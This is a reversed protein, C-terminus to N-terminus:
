FVILVTGDLKDRTLFLLLFPFMEFLLQNPFTRNLSRFHGFKLLLKENRSIVKQNKTRFQSTLGMSEILVAKNIEKKRLAWETTLKKKYIRENRSIIKTLFLSTFSILLM